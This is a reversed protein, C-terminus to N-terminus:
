LPTRDTDRTLHTTTAIADLNWICGSACDWGSYWLHDLRKHSLYPTIIVGDYDNAVREWSISRSWTHHDTDPMGPIPTNYDHFFADLDEGTHIYRINATDTLTIETDHTYHVDWWGTNQTAWNEWSDDGEVSVWLGHPKFLNHRQGYTYTRDLDLPKDGHHLLRMTRHPAKRHTHTDGLYPSHRNTTCTSTM